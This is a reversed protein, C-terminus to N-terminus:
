NTVVISLGQKSKTTSGPEYVRADACDGTPRKVNQYWVQMKRTPSLGPFTLGIWLSNQGVAGGSEAQFVPDSLTFTVATPTGNNGPLTVGGSGGGIIPGAPGNQRVTVSAPYTAVTSSQGTVSMWLNLTRVTGNPTKITLWGVDAKSGGLGCSFLIQGSPGTGSFTAPTTSGAIEAIVQNFGDGLSWSSAQALGSASTTLGGAGPVLTAGNSASLPSWTIGAGAVPNGFADTVRVQPPDSVPGVPLGTGYSYSAAAAPTSTPMYTQVVSAAGAGVVIATSTVPTLSGSTFDLTRSGVVGDIRLDTFTAVGGVMTRSLTGMLTGAGGTTISATVPVNPTSAVNGWADRLGIVPQQAFAAGATASASPQTNIALVTGDGAAVNFGASSIGTLGTASFALTRSGTVGDIRLDTFTAVGGTTSATNTGMLNGAGTGVVATITVGNAAVDNGFGDQVEVAPQTTFAIGARAGAPETVIALKAAPGATITVTGGAVAPHASTFSLDRAGVIGDIRLDTFTAVGNADTEVTLDGALTGAGSAIAATVAVDAQLVLNNNADRLQLTPQQVFAVGAQASGSATQELTFKAAAGATAQILFNVENGPLGEAEVIVLSNQNSDTYGLSSGDVTAKLNMYGAITGFDICPLAAVGNADTTVVVSAPPSAGCFHADGDPDFQTSAGLTFTVTVGPVPNAGDADDGPTLITVAPLGTTSQTGVAGSTYSDPLVLSAQKPAPKAAPKPANTVPSTSSRLFEEPSGGAGGRASITPDVAGFDSFEEPSGGVGGVAFFSAYLKQPLFFDATKRLVRQFTTQAVQLNAGCALQDALAQPIDVQELLEFGSADNPIHQAGLLLQNPDVTGPLPPFCVVVVPLGNATNLNAPEPVLKISVYTPYKDFPTVLPNSNAPLGTIEVNTGVPVYNEPFWVGAMGDPTVFVKSPDGPNLDFSIFCTMEAIVQDKFAGVTQDPDLETILTQQQAASLQNYKLNIFGILQDLKSQATAYDGAIFADVVVQFKGLTSNDNPVVYAMLLSLHSKIEDVSLPTCAGAELTSFDSNPRSGGPATSENACAALVVVLSWGLRSLARRMVIAKQEPYESLGSV